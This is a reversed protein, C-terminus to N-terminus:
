SCSLAMDPPCGHEIRSIVRAVTFAAIATRSHVLTPVPVLLVRAVAQHAVEIQRVAHVALEHDIAVPHVLQIALVTPRKCRDARESDHRFLIEIRVVVGM